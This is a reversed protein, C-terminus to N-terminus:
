CYRLCSIIQKLVAEVDSAELQAEQYLQNLHCGRYEQLCNGKLYIIKFELSPKSGTVLKVSAFINVNDYIYVYGDNELTKLICVEEENFLHNFRKIFASGLEYAALTVLYGIHVMLMNRTVDADEIPLYQKVTNGKEDTEFKIIKLM